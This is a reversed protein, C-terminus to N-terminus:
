NPKEMRSAPTVKPRSFDIVDERAPKRAKKREYMAKDAIHVASDFPVQVSYPTVGVSASVFKKYVRDAHRPSQRIEEIKAPLLYFRKRAMQEDMGPLVVLFEDGGWRVVYDDGRVLKKIAAAVTWIARDGEEHGERDNIAKLGDMDILVISGGAPDNSLAPRIEDLFLRNYTETLLDLHARRRSRLTEDRARAHVSALRRETEEMAWIILAIGFLMELFLDYFSMYALFPVPENSHAASISFLIVYAVDLLAGLFALLAALPRGLGPLRGRLVLVTVLLWAVAGIGMHIAYFLSGSHAFFVIAFAAAIAVLAAVGLPRALPSHHSMRDAAIVLAVFYLFKLYQFPFNRFPLDIETFTALSALALFLFLWAFGMAELVRDRNERSVYLFIAALLGVGATQVVLGLTSLQM